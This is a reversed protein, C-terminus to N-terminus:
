DRPPRKAAMRRGILVGACALSIITVMSPEPVQANPDGALAPLTSIIFAAAGLLASQALRM